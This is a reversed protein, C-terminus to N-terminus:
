NVTKQYKEVHYGCRRAMNDVSEDVNQGSVATMERGTRQLLAVVNFTRGLHPWHIRGDGLITCRYRAAASVRRLCPIWIFPVSLICGDALRLVMAEDTFSIGSIRCSPPVPSSRAPRRPQIMPSM